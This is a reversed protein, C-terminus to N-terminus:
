PSKDVGEDVDFTSLLMRRPEGYRRRGALYCKFSFASSVTMVRKSKTNWMDLKSSARQEVYLPAKGLANELPSLGLTKLRKNTPLYWCQPVCAACIRPAYDQQSKRAAANMAVLCGNTAILERSKVLAALRRVILTISAKTSMRLGELQDISFEVVKSPFARFLIENPLMIHEAAIDCLREQDNTSLRAGHKEFEPMKLIVHALEHAMVFRLSIGTQEDSYTALYRKMDLVGPLTDQIEEAERVFARLGLNSSHGNLAEDASARCELGWTRALSRLDLCDHELKVGALCRGAMAIALSRLASAEIRQMSRMDPMVATLRVM